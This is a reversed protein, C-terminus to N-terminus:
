ILAKGLLKGLPVSSHRPCIVVRWPGADTDHGFSDKETVYYSTWGAPATGPAMDEWPVSVPCYDCRIVMLLVM